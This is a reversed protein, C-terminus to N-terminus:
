EDTKKTYYGNQKRKEYYKKALEARREKTEQRYERMRLNIRDRNKLEYM